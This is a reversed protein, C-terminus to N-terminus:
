LIQFKGNTLDFAKGDEDIFYSTDTGGVRKLKHETLTRRLRPMKWNLLIYDAIAEQFNEFLQARKYVYDPHSYFICCSLM